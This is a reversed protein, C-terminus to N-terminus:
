GATYATSPYALVARLKRWRLGRETVQKVAEEKFEPTFRQTSVFQRRHEFFLCPIDLVGPATWQIVADSFTPQHVRRGTAPAFWNMGKDLWVLLQGRRKLSQNYTPWNITQYKPLLPKSM